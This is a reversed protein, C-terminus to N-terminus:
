LKIKHLVRSVANRGVDTQDTPEPKSKKGNMPSPDGYNDHAPITTKLLKISESIEEDTEGEVLKTLLKTQEESYGAQALQASKKTALAEQKAQEAQEQAQEYLKKYENQEELKKREAEENAREIEALKEKLANAEDVKAKFRDYPIHKSDVEKPEDTKLSEDTPTSEDINTQEENLQEQKNEEAM